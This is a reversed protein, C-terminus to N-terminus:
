RAGRRLVLYEGREGAVEFGALQPARADDRSVWVWVRAPDQALSAEFEEPTILVGTARSPEFERGEVLERRWSDPLQDSPKDWADVVEVARTRDLIVPVAFFYRAWFVVRDPAAIQPRLVSALRGPDLGQARLVLPQAVICLVVAIVAFLRRHKWTAFWPGLAIALAPVAPLVYGPLKSRPISFFVIVALSGLLGLLVADRAPGRGALGARAAHYLGLVWPLTLAFVLAFFYWAGRPNNFGSEAYREFHNHIFFFRLFGPMRREVLAFWPVTILLLLLIGRVQIAALLLRPRRTALAWVIFVLGPIVMGILGKALVGFAAAAYAALWLRSARDPPAQAAEIAFLITCTICANVLMDLSAFQAAGYFFLSTLLIIASWRAADQGCRTRVFRHVVYVTLLATALSVWRTVILSTGLLQVGAAELWFYLPPKQIFPLGNLRPILWDGTLVIWRAIDTYRGEDPVHLPRIWATVALWLTAALAFGLRLRLLSSFREFM